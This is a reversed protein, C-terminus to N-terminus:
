CGTGGSSCIRVGGGGFVVSHIAGIRTSALIAVVAEPVMPMYITVRDGKEVGLARLTVAFKKVQDFLQSYTLTRSEGTEGSEWIISAKDGRGKHLVHYDV